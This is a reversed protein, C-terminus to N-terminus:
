LVSYVITRCSVKREAVSPEIVYLEVSNMSLEYPQVFDKIGSLKAILRNLDNALFDQPLPQDPIKLEYYFLFETCVFYSQFNFKMSHLWHNLKVIDFILCIDQHLVSYM